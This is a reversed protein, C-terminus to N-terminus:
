VILYLWGRVEALNEKTLLMQAIPLDFQGFLDDYLAMLRGQGAAAVAHVGARGLPRNKLRLRRMGVAVAGSSVLVIKHGADRLAIITEVLRSLLALRIQLTDGTLISSSGVQTYSFTSPSVKIVITLSRSKHTPSPSPSRGRTREDTQIEIIMKNSGLFIGGLESPM